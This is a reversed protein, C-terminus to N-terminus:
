KFEVYGEKLADVGQKLGNADLLLHFHELCKQRWSMDQFNGIAQYVALYIPMGANGNINTMNEAAVLLQRTSVKKELAPDLRVKHAFSALISIVFKIVGNLEM